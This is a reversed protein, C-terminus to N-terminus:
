PCFAPLPAPGACAGIRMDATGAEHAGIDPALGSFGDNFNPIRVGEDYGRSVPALQYRGAAGAQWGHGEAFVPAGTMGLDIGHAEAGPAAAIMGSYLDFDLDNGAGGNTDIATWWPKWIQFLNNRTMTNEIPRDTGNGALAQGAGLPLTASADDTPQLLTNHFLYRRGGGWPAVSAGKEFYLRDDEDPPVTSDKRSHAYVNRFIYLPGYSTSSSAVGTATHDLYNGWIRVNRNGGESEIADDWANAILNGQIDSDRNPFGNDSFNEDGGMADNFMHDADSTITNYRIVYQGAGHILYIGQPGSPHSTSYKARYEGWSNSDTRPDHIFNRQIIIREITQSSSYIGADGNMGWVASSAGSSGADSDIRGWGAIDNAELVIDHAGDDLRIGNQQAGRLTLGRVIVFPASIVINDAHANGADLTAGGQATYLVYGDATGGETIALTASGSPVEVTRAIPFSESWTHTALENTFDSVTGVQVVYDRDPVTGVIAGRCEGTRADFWLPLADHWSCETTRRFRVECEDGAPASAPKWTIGISEFTPTASGGAPLSPPPTACPTDDADHDGADRTTGSGAGCAVLCAAAIAVTPTRM